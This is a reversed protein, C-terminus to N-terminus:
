ASRVATRYEELWDAVASNRSHRQLAGAVNQLCQLLRDSRVEPLFALARGAAEVAAEPDPRDRVAHQVAVDTIYLARNRAFREGHLLVAQEAGAVARDHQGLHARYLAELGALEGPHFFDLWEPDDDRMGQAYLTHAQVMARDTAARDGALAWGGAERMWLLALLRPSGLTRAAAQAAQAASVAERPHGSARALLSLSGFAKAELGRDNAIRASSLAENYLSRAEAARGSDFSLWGVAIALYGTASRLREGTEKSYVGDQLWRYASHLVETAARRLQASGHDHDHQYMGQVFQDVSRVEAMGIKRSPGPQWTGVPLAVAVGASDLLFARREVDSVETAGATDMVAPANVTLQIPAIRFGLEAM